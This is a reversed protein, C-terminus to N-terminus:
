LISHVLTSMNKRSADMNASVWWCDHSLAVTDHLRSNGHFGSLADNFEEGEDMLSIGPSSTAQLQNFLITYEDSWLMTIGHNPTIALSKVLKGDLFNKEGYLM